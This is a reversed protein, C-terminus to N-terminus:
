GPFKGRVRIKSFPSYRFSVTGTTVCRTHVGSPASQLPDCTACDTLKGNRTWKFGKKTKRCTVHPVSQGKAGKQCITFCRNGHCRVEKAYAPKSPKAGCQHWQVSKQSLVPFETGNWYLETATKFSLPFNQTASNLTLFNLFFKM